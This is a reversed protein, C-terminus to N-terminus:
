GLLSAPRALRGARARAQGVPFLARGGRPWRERAVAYPHRGTAGARAKLGGLRVREERLEGNREREGEMESERVRLAALWLLASGRWQRHCAGGELCWEEIGSAGLDAEVGEEEDAWTV